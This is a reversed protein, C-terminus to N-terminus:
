MFCPPRKQLNKSSNIKDLIKKYFISKIMIKEFVPSFNWKLKNVYRQNDTFESLKDCVIWTYVSLIVM